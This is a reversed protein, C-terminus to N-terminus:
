YSQSGTERLDDNESKMVMTSQLSVHPGLIEGQILFIDLEIEEMMPKRLKRCCLEIGSTEICVIAVEDLKHCILFDPM